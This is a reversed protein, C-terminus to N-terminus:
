TSWASALSAGPLTGAPVGAVDLLTAAMDRLSVLGAIRQGAPVRGPARVLLPVHLLPLYLSGGHGDLEHEGWHEGHDSTVIFVSHDLDGNERLRAVITGIVSDMYAIGGDYRDIEREGGNFRARFGDPPDYPGHADMFNLMAFYPRRGIRDRWAFFRSTIESASRRQGSSVRLTRLDPHTIATRIRWLERQAFALVINRGSGTQMLTTSLMAQRFSLAYDEFHTFGRSIGVQHGAYGSNAVFGGSAYGSASLVGAVTRLSDHMPRLYDAGAQSAWLGTMMSAHSPATWPAAAFAHDFTTGERSLAELSPSTLRAYGYVSLNAARVTDLILLIVNPADVLGKQRDAPANRLQFRSDDSEVWGAAVLLLAGGCVFRLLQRRVRRHGRDFVVGARIGLGLALVLQAVPHVKPLLLLLAFCALVAFLTAVFRLSIWRPWIAALAAVPVAVVLFCTLYGTLSLWAFERTTWTLRRLVRFLYDVWLSHVLAALVAGAVAFLMVDGVRVWRLRRADGDSLPPAPLPALSPAFNSM